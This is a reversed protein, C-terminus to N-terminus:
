CVLLSSLIYSFIDLSFAVFSVTSVMAALSAFTAFLIAYYAFLIAAGIMAM